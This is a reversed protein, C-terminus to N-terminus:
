YRRIIHKVKKDSSVSIIITIKKGDIEIQPFLINVNYITFIWFLLQWKIGSEDAIIMNICTDDYKSGKYVETIEIKVLNIRQEMLGEQISLKQFNPTDKLETETFFNNNIYIRIKKPRSNQKYLWPRNYDLFGISIYLESNKLVSFSISEGIGYGNFRWGM